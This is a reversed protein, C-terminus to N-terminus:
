SEVFTNALRVTVGTSTGFDRIFQGLYEATEGSILAGTEYNFEIRFLGIDDIRTEPIAAPATPLLVASTGEPTQVSITLGEPGTRRVRIYAEVINGRARIMHIFPGDNSNEINICSFNLRNDRSGMKTFIPFFQNCHPCSDTKFMVLLIGDVDCVMKKGGNQLSFNDQTLFQVM